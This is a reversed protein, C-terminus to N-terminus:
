KKGGRVAWMSYPGRESSDQYSFGDDMDVFWGNSGAYGDRAWYGDAQINKFGHNNLWWAPTYGNQTAMYDVLSMLENLTPLRWDTYGCYASPIALKATALSYRAKSPAKIWMLQTKSDRVIKQTPACNKGAPNKGLVFRHSSKGNSRNDSAVADVTLSYLVFSALILKGAPIKIKTNVM